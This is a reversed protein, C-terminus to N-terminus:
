VRRKRYALRGAAIIGTLALLIVILYLGGYRSQQASDFVGVVAGTIRSLGAKPKPEVEQELTVLENEEIKQEDEENLEISNQNMVLLTESQNTTITTNTRNIPAPVSSSSSGGSSRSSSSGPSNDQPQSAPLAINFLVSAVETNNQTNNMEKRCYTTIRYEGNAKSSEQAMFTMNDDTSLTKNTIGSDLTYYCSGSESLSINVLYNDVNYTIAEPSVIRIFSPAVENDSTFNVFFRVDKSTITSTNMCSAIFHYTDFTRNKAEFLYSSSFSVNDVQLMTYNTKGADLTYNCYDMPSETALSFNLSQIQNLNYIADKQPSHVIIASSEDNSSSNESTFNVFFRVDKSLNKNGATDECEAIFHYTDFTRNKAEFLYNSTFSTGASDRNMTYNTKGSDLTYGCYSPENTQVTLTLEGIGDFNYVKEEEPSVITILPSANDSTNNTEEGDENGVTGNLIVIKRSETSEQDGSEAKFHGQITYNGLILNSFVRGYKNQKADYLSKVESADIAKSQIIVEDIKGDWYSEEDVAGRGIVLSSSSHDIATTLDRSGTLEGNLYLKAQSGDYTAVVHTWVDTQLNGRVYTHDYDNVFFNIGGDYYAIGYGDKWDFDSSKMLVAAYQHLSDPNIWASITIDKSDFSSDHNVELYNGRDFTTSNGFKGASISLTGQMTADNNYSSFDEMADSQISDIQLWLSLSNDFDLFTYHNESSTTELAVPIESSNLLSNHLPTAADFEIIAATGLSSFMIMSLVILLNLRM